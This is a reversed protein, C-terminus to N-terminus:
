GVRRLPKSLLREGTPVPVARPFRAIGLGPDRGGFGFGVSHLLVWKEWSLSGAPRPLVRRGVSETWQGSEVSTTLDM